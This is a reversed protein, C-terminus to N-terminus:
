SHRAHIRGQWRRSSQSAQRRATQSSCNTLILVTGHLHKSAHRDSALSYLSASLLYKIADFSYAYGQAKMRNTVNRLQAGSPKFEELVCFLLSEHAKEDWPMNDTPLHSSALSESLIPIRQISIALSLPHRTLLTLPPFASPQLSTPPGFHPRLCFTPTSYRRATLPSPVLM